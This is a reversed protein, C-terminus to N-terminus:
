SVLESDRVELESDKIELLPFIGDVAEASPAIM